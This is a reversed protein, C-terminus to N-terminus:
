RHGVLENIASRANDFYQVQRLGNKGQEYPEMAAAFSVPGWLWPRNAGAKGEAVPRDAREWTRLFAEDSFGTLPQPSPAAGPTPKPAPTAEPSPGPGAGAPFQAFYIDQDGNRTDPWAAYATAGDPSLDLAIYDGILTG